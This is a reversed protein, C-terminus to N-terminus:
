TPTTLRVVTDGVAADCTQPAFGPPCIQLRPPAGRWAGTVRVEVGGPAASVQVTVPGFPTLVPGIRAPSDKRCEPRVGSAIVLDMREERVFCNRVMM